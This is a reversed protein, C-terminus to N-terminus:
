KITATVNQSQGRLKADAHGTITNIVICFQGDQSAITSYQAPKKYSPDSTIDVIAVPDMAGAISGCLEAVTSRYGIFNFSTIKVEAAQGVVCLSLVALGVFSKNLTM